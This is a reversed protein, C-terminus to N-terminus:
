GSFLRRWKDKWGKLFGGGKPLPTAKIDSDHWESSSVTDTTFLSRQQVSRHSSRPEYGTDRVGFSAYVVKTVKGFWENVLPQLNQDAWAKDEPNLDLVFRSERRRWYSGAVSGQQEVVSEGDIAVGEIVDTVDFQKRNGCVAVSAVMSFEDSNVHGITVHIGDFSEEDHTDTGSHFASFDCHSHITGVPVFQPGDQDVTDSEPLGDDREYNVSSYSVRQQPCHLRYEQLKKSFYLTVYSESRHEDFVKKFFAKAQAIIRGPLKPLDFSIQKEQPQLHPISDVKVLASGFAREARMFLGDKTVLYYTGKEPPKFGPSSLYVPFM